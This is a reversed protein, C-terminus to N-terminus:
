KWEKQTIQKSMNKFRLSRGEQIERKREIAKKSSSRWVSGVM